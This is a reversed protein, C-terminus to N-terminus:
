AMIARPATTMALANHDSSSELGPSNAARSTNDTMLEARLTSMGSPAPLEQMESENATSKVASRNNPGPGVINIATVLAHDCHV